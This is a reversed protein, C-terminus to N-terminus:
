KRRDLLAQERQLAAGMADLDGPQLEFSIGGPATQGQIMFRVTPGSSLDLRAPTLGYLEDVDGVSTWPESGTIGARAKTWLDILAPWQSPQITLEGSPLGRMRLPNDISIMGLRSGDAAHYVQLDLHEQGLHFIAVTELSGEQADAPAAVLLLLIAVGALRGAMPWRMAISM